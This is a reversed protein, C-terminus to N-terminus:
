ALRRVIFPINSPNSSVSLSHPVAATLPHPYIYPVYGPKAYLFYNVNETLSADHQLQTGVNTFTNNWIYTDSMMKQTPTGADNLLDIGLGLGILTNNFILGSGGRPAIGINGGIADNITNNYVEWARSSYTGGHADVYSNGIPSKNCTNYRFVYRANSSSSIEHRCRLFTCDEVFATTSTYKGFLNNVDPEWVATGFPPTYETAVDVGYGWQTGAINRYPNDFVCHDIVGCIAWQGPVAFRTNDVEAGAGHFDEFYCDHIRFDKVGEMIIARYSHYEIQGPSSSGAPASYNVYGKFHIGSIRIPKQPTQDGRGFFMNATIYSDSVDGTMILHTQDKGAGVINVGGKIEVGMPNNDLSSRKSSNITFPFSGAPILVNGGGAAYVADIAAQIDDASGTAVWVDDM